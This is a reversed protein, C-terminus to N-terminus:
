AIILILHSKQLLSSSFNATDLMIRDKNEIPDLQCPTIKGPFSKSKAGIMWINKTLVFPSM